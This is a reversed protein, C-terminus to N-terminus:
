LSLGVHTYIGNYGTADWYQSILSATCHLPFMSLNVNSSNSWDYGTVGNSPFKSYYFKVLELEGIIERILINYWVMNLISYEDM